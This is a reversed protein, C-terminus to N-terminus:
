MSSGMAAMCSISFIAIDTFRFRLQNDHNIGVVKTANSNGKAVVQVEYKESEDKVQLRLMSM